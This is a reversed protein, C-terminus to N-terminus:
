ANHVSRPTAFPSVWQGYSRIGPWVYSWDGQREATLAEYRTYYSWWYLEDLGVIM